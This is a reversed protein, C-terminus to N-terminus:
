PNVVSRRRRRVLALAVLGALPAVGAPGGDGSTSCCGPADPTDNGYDQGDRPSADPGADPTAASTLDECSQGVLAHPVAEVNGALDVARVSFTDAAHYYFIFPQDNGAGGGPCDHGLSLDRFPGVLFHGADDFYEYRIWADPEDDVIAAAHFAHTVQNPTDCSSGTNDYYTSTVVVGQLVPATTDAGAGTTFTAVVVADGVCGTGDGCPQGLVLDDVVEYTTSPALPAMPVLQIGRWAGEITVAVDAGGQARLVVHSPPADGDYELRVRANTPV